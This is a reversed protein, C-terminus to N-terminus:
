LSRVIDLVIQQVVTWRYELRRTGAAESWGELARQSVLRARGGKLQHERTEILRRAKPSEVVARPGTDALALDLWQDVFRRTLVPIREQQEYVLDWFERLDWRAQQAARDDAESAWGEIRSRYEDILDSRESKEALMLNYLLAAGHTTESFCRAHELITAIRPPLRDVDPRLWPFDVIRSAETEDVLFALM